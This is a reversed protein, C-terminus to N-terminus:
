NGAENESKKLFFEALELDNETDIDISREIPTEVLAMRDGYFKNHYMIVETKIGDVLGNLRFAPPLLQRQYYKEPDIQEIFPVAFGHRDKRFMWYPHHVGGVACVTRVSDAGTERWKEIVMRIDDISKLPTTCRLNLVFDPIYNQNDKLWQLAQQFVLRDPVNDKALEGPRTFPADAGYHLAKDIIEEDDSSVIVRDILDLKLAPEIAYALLPKKGLVRLNKNKISKSGGRAPILALIKVNTM